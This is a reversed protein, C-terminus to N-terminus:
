PPDHILLLDAPRHMMRGKVRWSTVDIGALTHVPSDAPRNSSYGVPLGVLVLPSHDRSM